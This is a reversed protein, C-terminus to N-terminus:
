FCINQDISANLVHNPQAMCTTAEYKTVTSMCFHLFFFWHTKIHKNPIQWKLNYLSFSQKTSTPWLSPLSDLTSLLFIITERSCCHISDRYFNSATQKAFIQGTSGPSKYLSQILHSILSIIIAGSVSQIRLYNFGKVSSEKSRFICQVGFEEYRKVKRYWRKSQVQLFYKRLLGQKAPATKM